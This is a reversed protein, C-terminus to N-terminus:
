VGIVCLLLLCHLPIVNFIVWVARCVCLCLLALLYVFVSEFAWVWVRLCLCLYDFYIQLYVLWWLLGLVVFGYVGFWLMLFLVGLTLVWVLLSVWM